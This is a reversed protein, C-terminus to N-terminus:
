VAELRGVQRSEREGLVCHGWARRTLGDRRASSWAEEWGAEWVRESREGAKLLRKLLGKLLRKLFGRLVWKM